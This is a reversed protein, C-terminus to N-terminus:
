FFKSEKSLNELVFHRASTRCQCGIEIWNQGKKKKIDMM